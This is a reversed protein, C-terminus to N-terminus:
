PFTLAMGQGFPLAKWEGQLRRMREKVRVVFEVTVWAPVGGGAAESWNRLGDLFMQPPRETKMFGTLSGVIRETAGAEGAWNMDAGALTAYDAGKALSGYFSETLGAETEVAYHLLDHFLLSKTELPPTAGTGDALTYALTHHTPSIRTLRVTLM